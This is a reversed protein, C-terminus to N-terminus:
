DFGEWPRRNSGPVDRVKKKALSARLITESRGDGDYETPLKHTGYIHIQDCRSKHASRTAFM